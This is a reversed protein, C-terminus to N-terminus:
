GRIVDHKILNVWVNENLISNCNDDYANNIKMNYVPHDVVKGWQGAWVVHHILTTQIDNSTFYRMEPKSDFKRKMRDNNLTNRGQKGFHPLQEPYSKLLM